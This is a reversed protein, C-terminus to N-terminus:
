HSTKVWRFTGPISRRNADVDYALVCGDSYYRHITTNSVFQEKFNYDAEHGRWDFSVKDQAHAKNVFDVIERKSIMVHWIGTLKNEEM